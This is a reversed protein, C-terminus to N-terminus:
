KLISVSGKYSTNTYDLIYYYVGAPLKDGSWAFNKTESEFVKKGWRNYIKINAFRYFCNEVPLNPLTFFDNVNDDNPTFANAPVFSAIDVEKDILTLAFSVKTAVDSCENNEEKLVFDILYEQREGNQSITRCDPLWYFRSIVRGAVKTSDIFQFGLLDLSEGNILAKL